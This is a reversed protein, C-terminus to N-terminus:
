TTGNDLTEVLIVILGSKLLPRGEYINEPVFPSYQDDGFIMPPNGVGGPLQWEAMFHERICRLFRGIIDDLKEEDDGKAHVFIHVEHQLDITNNRNDTNRSITLDIEACPFIEPNQGRQSRYVRQLHTVTAGPEKEDWIRELRDKFEQSELSQKMGNRVSEADVGM